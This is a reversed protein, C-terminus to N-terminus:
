LICDIDPLSRNPPTKSAPPRPITNSSPSAAPQPQKKSPIEEVEPTEVPVSQEPKPDSRLEAERLKELAKLARDHMRSFSTEHRLLIELTKDQNAMNTFATALNAAQAIEPLASTIAVELTDLHLNLAATQILWVRQQRWRAAIMENVIGMEVADRPKFKAIYAEALENFKEQSENSLVLTRSNLGHTLSNMSSIRIGEPTKRGAAKAGNKRAIRRKQRSGM